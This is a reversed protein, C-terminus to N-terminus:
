SLLRRHGSHKKDEGCNHHGQESREYGAARLFLSATQTDRSVTVLVDGVALLQTHSYPVAYRSAGFLSLREGGTRPKTNTRREVSPNVHLAPILSLVGYLRAHGGASIRERFRLSNDALELEGNLVALDGDDSRARIVPDGVDDNKRGVAARKIEAGGISRNADRSDGPGNLSSTHISRDREALDGSCHLSINLVTRDRHDAPASVKAEVGLVTRQGDREHSGLPVTIEFAM